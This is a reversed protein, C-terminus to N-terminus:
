QKRQCKPCTCDFLYMAKLKEQRQQFPMSEDIYSIFLEEGKRIERCAVM